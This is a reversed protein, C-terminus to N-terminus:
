TEIRDARYIKAAITEDIVRFDSVAEILGYAKVRFCADPVSAADVEVVTTITKKVTVSFKAM